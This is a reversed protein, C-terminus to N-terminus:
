TVYEIEDDRDATMQNTKSNMRRAGHFGANRFRAILGRRDFKAVFQDFGAQRGREVISTAAHFSLAILLAHATRADARLARCARFGSIGPMEIDSVVLDFARGKVILALPDEGSAIATVDFPLRCSPTLM